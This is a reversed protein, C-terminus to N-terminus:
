KQDLQNVMGFSIQQQSLHENSQRVQMKTM